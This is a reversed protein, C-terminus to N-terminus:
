ALLGRGQTTKKAKKSVTVLCIGDNMTIIQNNCFKIRKDIM